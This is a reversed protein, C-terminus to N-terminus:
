QRRPLDHAASQGELEQLDETVIAVLAPKSHGLLHTGAGIKKARRVAEGLYGPPERWEQDPNEVPAQERARLCLPM